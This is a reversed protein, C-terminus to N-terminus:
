NEDGWRARIATLAVRPGLAGPARGPPLFVGIAAVGAAGAARCAGVNEPTVGGIALVPSASARVADALARTGAVPVGAPKSGSPFVTGFVQYDADPDLEGLSHASRGILMRAGALERVVRAPPGDARVHVGGADAAIAVDARDNVLVKTPLGRARAVLRVVVSQLVRADLDRERVQILDIGADMAEDLQRELAALEERETRADPHLARRNTVLCVCPRPLAIV